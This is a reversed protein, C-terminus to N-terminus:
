ESKELNDLCLHEADTLIAELEAPTLTELARRAQGDEFLPALVPALAEAAAGERLAAGAKLVQGMMDQGLGRREWGVEPESQPEIAQVWVLPEAAMGTKRVRELLEQTSAVTNYEYYLPGRGALRLRAVVPRGEGQARLADLKESIM